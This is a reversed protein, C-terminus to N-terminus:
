HTSGGCSCHCLNSLSHQSEHVLSPPSDEAVVPLNNQVQQLQSTRLLGPNIQGELLFREMSGGTSDYYLALQDARKIPSRMGALTFRRM